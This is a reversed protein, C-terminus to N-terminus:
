MQRKLMAQIDYKDQQCLVSVRLDQSRECKDLWGLAQVYDQELDSSIGVATLVALQRMAPAHNHSTAARRFYEGAMVSNKKIGRGYMRMLGLHYMSEAYNMLSAMEYLQAAREKGSIRTEIDRSGAEELRQTAPYDYEYLVALLHMAEPVQSEIAAELLPVVERPPDMGGVIAEEGPTLSSAVFSEGLSEKKASWEDLLSKALLWHCRPVSEQLSAKRFWKIAEQLDKALTKGMGNYHLLGFACQAVSHGEFAALGLYQAAREQQEAKTLDERPAIGYLYFLGLFYGQEPNDGEVKSHINAFTAQAISTTHNIGYANSLFENEVILDDLPPSFVVKNHWPAPGTKTQMINSHRDHSLGSARKEGSTRGQMIESRPDYFEPVEEFLDTSEGTAPFMFGHSFLLFSALTRAMGRM